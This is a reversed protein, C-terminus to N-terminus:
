AHLLTNILKGVSDDQLTVLRANLQYAHSAEMMSVLEPLPRVGSSEIYGSQVLAAAPVIQDDSAAFRAAGVKRLAAYNEFDVIALEGVVAGDQIVRGEVDFSPAGGYPNLRIPVGARGLLPAGDSAAVLVGDPSKMVRGDRTYQRQGDADVVLFGPGELAIDYPNDTRIKPADSFDTYTQGLWLGGSLGAVDVASPGQRDGSRRAPVREALTAVDRKFGVTDANAINNALVAQRYENTLMGAASQYLGYIM